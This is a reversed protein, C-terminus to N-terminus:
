PIEFSFRIYIALFHFITDIMVFTLISKLASYDGGLFDKNCLSPLM